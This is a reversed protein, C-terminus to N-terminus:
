SLEKRQRQIINMHISENWVVERLLLSVSKLPIAIIEQFSAPIHFQWKLSSPPRM